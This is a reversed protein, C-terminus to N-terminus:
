GKPKPVTFAILINADEDSYGINILRDFADSEEIYGLKFAKTIEAPTLHRVNAERELAWIEMLDDRMGSPVGLADLDNSADGEPLKHGVYLAHIKSVAADTARRVRELDSLALLWEVEDPEYGLAALMESAQAKSLAKTAYLDRVQGVALDREKETKRSKAESVLAAADDESYGLDLLKSIGDSSSILGKSVLTVITRQPLLRVRSAVLIDIYKNKLRSERLAQKAQTETLLGRNLFDLITEPGPPNGAVGYLPDYHEPLLGGEAAIKRAEVDSLQGQVSAEIAETPSMPGLRLSEIVDVWENRVRSQRIGHVLRDRDIIGRRYAELLEQIAPPTGAALVLKAFDDDRVGSQAATEAATKEDTIGRVVMDALADPPLLVRMLELLLERYDEHVSADRLMKLADDRNLARRRMLDLIETFGPIIKSSEMLQRFRSTALGQKRAEFEMDHFSERGRVALNAAAGAPLPSMPNAAIVGQVGPALENNVLGVLGASMVQGGLGTSLLTTWQGTRQSLFTFTRQAWEPMDDAEAIKRWLDGITAHVESGTLNFFSEQVQMALAHTHPALKQRTTVVAQATLQAVRTGMKGGLRDPDM